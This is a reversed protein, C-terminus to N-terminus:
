SVCLTTLQFCTSFLIFCVNKNLNPNILQWTHRKLHVGIQWTCSCHWGWKISIFENQLNHGLTISKFHSSSDQFIDLTCSGLHKPLVLDTGRCATFYTLVAPKEGQQQAVCFVAEFPFPGSPTLNSLPVFIHFYTPHTLIDGFVLFSADEFILILPVHLLVENKKKIHLVLNWYEM